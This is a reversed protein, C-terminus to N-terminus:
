SSGSDFRATGGGFKRSLLEINIRHKKCLKYFTVRSIGLLYASKTINFSTQALAEELANREANSRIDKLKGLSKVTRAELGLDSPQILRNDCLVMARRVRSIMERVNGPWAYHQMTEIARNSFGKVCRQKEGSFKKFFFQALLEIDEARERLPPVFLRLVNLRYFLDERFKGAKVAKELDVNTAAIVRVDVPISKVGGVRDIVKEQLFRLLNGQLDLPLDGIEDLFLTGGEALEIKGIKKQHAGTFAGKEHGFLEDQILTHPISGCNVAVFPGSKRPSRDHIAKATLEKGTGTEGLILVPAETLAIKRIDHFLQRMPSSTGVMAQEDGPPIVFSKTELSKKEIQAMGYAHGIAHSLRLLDPPLRHYDFFNHGILTMLREDKLCGPDILGIWRTLHPTHSIVSEIEAIEQHHSKSCLSDVLLILGVMPPHPDKTLQSGSFRHIARFSWEPMSEQFSSEWRSFADNKDWVLVSRPIASM